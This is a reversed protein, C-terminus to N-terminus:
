GDVYDQCEMQGYDYEVIGEGEQSNAKREDAQSEVDYKALFLSYIIVVSAHKVSM